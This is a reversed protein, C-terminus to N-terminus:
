WLYEFGRHALDDVIEVRWAAPYAAVSLLSEDVMWEM